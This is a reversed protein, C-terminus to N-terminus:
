LDLRFYQKNFILRNSDIDMWLFWEEKQGSKTSCSCHPWPEQQFCSAKTFNRSKCAKLSVVLHVRAEMRGILCLLTLVILTTCTNLAKSTLPWVARFEFNLKYQNLNAVQPYRAIRRAIQPWNAAASNQPDSEEPAASFSTQWVCPCVFVNLLRRLASNPPIITVINNALAYRLRHTLTHTQWWSRHTHTHTQWWSRHTNKWSQTVPTTLSPGPPWLLGTLGKIRGALVGLYSILLWLAM